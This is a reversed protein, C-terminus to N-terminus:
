LSRKIFNHKLLRLSYVSKIDVTNRKVYVTEMKMVPYQVWFEMSLFHAVTMASLFSAKSFPRKRVLGAYRSAKVKTNEKFRLYSM